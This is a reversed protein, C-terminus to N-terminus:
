KPIKIKNGIVYIVYLNQSWQLHSTFTQINQVPQFSFALSLFLLPVASCHWVCFLHSFYDCFRSFCDLELYVLASLAIHLTSFFAQGNSSVLGFYFSFDIQHCFKIYIKSIKKQIKLPWTMLYTRFHRHFQRHFHCRISDYQVFFHLELYIHTVIILHVNQKLSPQVFTSRYM